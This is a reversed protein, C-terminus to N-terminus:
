TQRDLCTRTSLLHPYAQRERAFCAICRCLHKKLKKLERYTRIEQVIPHKKVLKALIQDGTAYQRKATRTPKKTIKLHEFLIAGLQKPSGINFTTGALAHIKKELVAIEQGLNMSIKQLMATDIAIGVIEMEVLVPLLKMSVAYFLKNVEEKELLPVLKQYIQLTIDADECAYPVLQEMPVHVMNRQDKGKPGILTAIEIPAYHLFKNALATLNHRANPALLHHAIMTDFFPGTVKIGAQHLVLLDYKINQGVKLQPGEQLLPTLLALRSPAEEGTTPIFYAKGPTYSIAIGLLKATHPNLGTTETDLCFVSQGELSRVLKSIAKLSTLCTYSIKQKDYSKFPHLGDNKTNAPTVKSLETEKFLSLQQSTGQQNKEGFLRKALRRFALETLLPDLLERDPGQYASQAFDVKIPAQKDITALKKSLLAQEAYTRIRERLTGKLEEKRAILNEVSGFTKILKQATKPGINPVGPINDSVDGWLGLIDPIQGVEKVQWHALVEKKQWIVAPKGGNSPKYLAVHSGVLQGMDKDLSVIYVEFGATVAQHALTGIIDDAEYGKLDVSPIHFGELLQQSYPIATTIAEPQVLRHAKYAPYLEQRWTAEKRDFAAIVHSPSQKQLLEVLSNAFGLLAGVELGQSNTYTRQHLAFHARYILAMADILFLKRPKEQM